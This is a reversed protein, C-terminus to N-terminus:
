CDVFDHMVEQLYSITFDQWHGAYPSPAPEGAVGASSALLLEDGIEALAQSLVLPNSPLAPPLSGAEVYTGVARVVQALGSPSAVVVSHAAEPGSSTITHAVGRRLLYSQGSTLVVTHAKTHVTLEGELVFLLMDYTTHRLWPIASGPWGLCELLDYHGGTTQGDALLKVHHGLFWYAQKM